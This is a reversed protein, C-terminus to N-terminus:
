SQDLKVNITLFWFNAPAFAHFGSGNVTILDQCYVSLFTKLNEEVGVVLLDLDSSGTHRAMAGTGLQVSFAAPALVKTGTATLELALYKSSM